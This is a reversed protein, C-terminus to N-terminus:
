EPVEKGPKAELAKSISQNNAILELTTLRQNTDNREDQITEIFSKTYGALALLVAMATASFGIMAKHWRELVLVRKDQDHLMKYRAESNLTLQNIRQDFVDNSHQLSSVAAILPKIDDMTAAIHNLRETIVAINTRNMEPM